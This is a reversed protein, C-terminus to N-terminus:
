ILVNHPVRSVLLSLFHCLDIYFTFNISRSTNRRVSADIFSANLHLDFTRQSCQTSLLISPPIVTDSGSSSRFSCITSATTVFRDFSTFPSSRHGVYFSFAQVDLARTLLKNSQRWYENTDIPSLSLTLPFNCKYFYEISMVDFKNTKSSQVDNQISKLSTSFPLM